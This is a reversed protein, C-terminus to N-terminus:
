RAIEPSTPDRPPQHRSAVCRFTLDPSAKRVHVGYRYSAGRLMRIVLRSNYKPPPVDTWDPGWWTYWGVLVEKIAPREPVVFGPAELRAREWEGETPLREGRWACYREAADVTLGPGRTGEEGDSIPGYAPCGGAAVCRGYEDSSVPRADIDFAEVVQGRCSAHRDEPCGGGVRGRDLHLKPVRERMVMPGRDAATAPGAARPAWCGALIVLLPWRMADEVRM